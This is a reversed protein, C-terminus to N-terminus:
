MPQYSAQVTNIKQSELIGHIEGEEVSQNQKDKKEKVRKNEEDDTHHEGIFTHLMPRYIYHNLRVVLFCLRLYSTFEM